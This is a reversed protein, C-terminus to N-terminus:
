KLLLEQLRCFEATRKAPKMKRINILKWQLAPLQKLNEIGLRDWEPEGYKMSLLFQKEDDDLSQVLMGPLNKQLQQLVPLPVEDRTMGVFQDDYLSTIDQLNPSLLENMPRNHGALYVVFSRRIESTIGIDDLLLKVDFLDRPHQRDLAACIKGLYRFIVCWFHTRLTLAM